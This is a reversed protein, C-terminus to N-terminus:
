DAYYIADLWLERTDSKKGKLLYRQGVVLSIGPPPNLVSLTDVPDFAGPTDCFIWAPTECAACDAGEPCPPCEVKSRDECLFGLVMVQKSTPRPIAKTVSFAKTCDSVLARAPTSAGLESSDSVPAPSHSCAVLVLIGIWCRM